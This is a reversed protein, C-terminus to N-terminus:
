CSNDLCGDERGRFGKVQLGTKMRTATLIYKVQLLLLKKFLPWTLENREELDDLPEGTM